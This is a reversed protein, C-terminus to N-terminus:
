LVGVGIANGVTAPKYLRCNTIAGYVTYVANNEDLIIGENGDINMPRWDEGDFYDIRVYEGAALLGKVCFTTALPFRKHAYSGSPDPTIKLTDSTVASESKEFLVM